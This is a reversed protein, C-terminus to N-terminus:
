EAAARALMAAVAEGGREAVEIGIGSGIQGPAVLCQARMVAHRRAAIIAADGVLVARDLAGVAMEAAGQLICQQQAARRCEVIEGGIAMEDILEDAAPVASVGCADVGLPLMQLSQGVPPAAVELLGDDGDGGAATEGQALDEVGHGRAQDAM